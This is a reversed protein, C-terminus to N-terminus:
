IRSPDKFPEMVFIPLIQAVNRSGKTTSNLSTKPGVLTTSRFTKSHKKTSLFLSLIWWFSLWDISQYLNIYIIIDHQIWWANRLNQVNKKWTKKNPAYGCSSVWHRIRADSGNAAGRDDHRCGQAEPVVSSPHFRQFTVMWSLTEM